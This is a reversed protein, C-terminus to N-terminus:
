LYTFLFDKHSMLLQLNFLYFTIEVLPDVTQYILNNLEYISFQIM